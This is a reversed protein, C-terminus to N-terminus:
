TVTERLQELRSEVLSVSAPDIAAAKEYIEAAKVPMNLKECVLGLNLYLRVDSPTREIARSFISIAESYRGRKSLFCGLANLASGNGKDKDLVTRLEREAEDDRNLKGLIIGLNTEIQLNGPSLRYAKEFCALAKKLEGRKEHICGLSNQIESNDPNRLLLQSYIAIASDFEDKMEHIKGSLYILGEHTPYESLARGVVESARSTMKMQSYLFVSKLYVKLDTGPIFRIKELAEAALDFDEMRYMIEALIIHSQSMFPDVELSRNIYDLGAQNDGKLICASAANRLLNANDPSLKMGQRLAELAGDADRSEILAVGLNNYLDPKSKQADLGKRFCEVSEGVRGLKLLALGKLNLFEWSRPNLALGNETQDLSEETHGLGLLQSALEFIYKTNGPNARLKKEGLDRYMRYKRDVRDSDKLRGYHHVIVGEAKYIPVALSSLSEEVDEHVEGRYRIADANRFLRVQQSPFYGLTGRNMGDDPAASRWGFTDSDDTYTWQEFMFAADPNGSVLSKIRRHARADIVEDADLILIWDGTARDIAHNRADSFDNNWKKRYVRAGLSEALAVTGDTSGTDVVVLEDVLGRVSGIADRICEEEDLTIMCCTISGSRSKRSKGIDVIDNGNKRPM